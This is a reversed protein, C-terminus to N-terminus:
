RIPQTAQWHMGDHRRQDAMSGNGNWDGGWTWGEAAFAALVEPCSAFHPTPDGLGNRPADFDVACGFAHMSLTSLGRMVRYNFSGSFVSMGWDDIMGQDRGSREWIDALVRALSEACHRHITIKTIRIEGMAMAFPPPVTVLSARRWADSAVGGGRGRPDGYVSRYALVDSQKPWTNM